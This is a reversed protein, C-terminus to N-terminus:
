MKEYRGLAEKLMKVHEEVLSEPSLITIVNAYALLLHRLEYNLKPM